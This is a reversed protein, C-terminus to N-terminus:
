CRSRRPLLHFADPNHIVAQNENAQLFAAIRGFETCWVVLRTNLMGRTNLPRHDAQM